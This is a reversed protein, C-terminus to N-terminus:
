YKINNISFMYYKKNNKKKPVLMVVDGLLQNEFWICPGGLLIPQKPIRSCPRLVMHSARRFWTCYFWPNNLLGQM